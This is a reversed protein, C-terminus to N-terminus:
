NVVIRFFWPAFPRAPDLQAIRQYVRLFAGQAVDEALARDRVVLYAARVARVQYLRVLAELGGIDGDRLRALAEYENSMSREREASTPHPSGELPIIGWRHLPNM